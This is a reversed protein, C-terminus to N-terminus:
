SPWNIRRDIVKVEYSIPEFADVIMQSATTSDAEGCMFIDVAAFDHEPWTHISMHSEALGIIATFGNTDPFIQAREFLVTCGVETAVKKFLDCVANADTLLRSKTKIDLIFHKGVVNM